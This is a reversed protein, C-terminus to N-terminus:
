TNDARYVTPVLLSLGGGVGLINEIVKLMYGRKRRKGGLTKLCKIKSKEGAVGRKTARPIARPM